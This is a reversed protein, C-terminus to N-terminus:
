ARPQQGLRRLEARMLRELEVSYSLNHSKAMAPALAMFFECLANGAELLAHEEIACCTARLPLLADAPLADEIKFYPEGEDVNADGFDYNLRALIVCMRRMAEIQGYAFWWQKRGMAKIFHSLEHWFWDIQRRLLQIQNARDAVSMALVGERLIGHRDFLVKYPGSCIHQYDSQRGFWFEGETGNEHIFLYGHPRGFDELFLLRGLQRAFQAKEALFEEYAEDTTVFYLDLDSYEDAQGRAHSGGLFAAVIRADALCVALFRSAVDRQNDPLELEALDV